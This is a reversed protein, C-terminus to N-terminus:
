TYRYYQPLSRPRHAQPLCTPFVHSIRLQIASACFTIDHVAARTLALQLDFLCVFCVIFSLSHGSRPYHLTIEFLWACAPMSALPAFLQKLNAARAHRREGCRAADPDAVIVVQRNPTRVKVVPGHAAILREMTAILGHRVVELGSGLLPLEGRPGAIFCCASRCAHYMAALPATHHGTVSGSVDHVKRPLLIHVVSYILEVLEDCPVCCSYTTHSLDCQAHVRQLDM